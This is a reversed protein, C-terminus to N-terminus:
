LDRHIPLKFTFTSGTGLESKLTIKGGHKEIFEKCLLLGLGTGKENQTGRTTFSTEINFLRQLAQTDMGIGTDSVSIEVQGDEVKAFVVVKGNNPTFKIANSFLNRLTASLMNEDAVLITNDPIGSILKINKQLASNELVNFEQTVLNGLIVSVPNFKVKGQQMRSWALLNDLLSLTNRATSSIITAYREITAIETFKAEDQLLESFGLISNFPSRLDHAIISFFKDKTANLEKLENAQKLLLLEAHKRQTIDEVTGEYYLTKGNEDRFAKASERVYIDVGDIRKWKSEIVKVFGDHEIQDLFERRNYFFIKPELELNHKALEEFSNFKLINVLTPNALLIQCDPTTRYLGISTNEYLSRFRQESEVLEQQGKRRSTVDRLIGANFIKNGNEDNISWGHDEVWIISGDKKRLPYEGLEDPNFKGLIEDRDSPNLYITSKIDISQLDDKDEYGLIKIMAPNVEVFKGENTSKYVADPMREVLNRYLEESEKLANEAKRKGIIKYLENSVLQLQMIDHEKYDTAKNGVGFILRIKGGEIVPISMLRTLAPHGEPM